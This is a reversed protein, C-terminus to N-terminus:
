FAFEGLENELNSIINELEIKNEQLPRLEDFKRAKTLEEVQNTVLYRQERMVMLQERLERVEKKTLRPIEQIKQSKQQLSLKLKELEQHKNTLSKYELLNDQLFILYGQYINALLRNYDQYENSVKLTNNSVTFYINKFINTQNEFDKLFSMLKNRLKNLSEEEQDIVNITVQNLIQQYKPLLIEIQKKILLISKYKDFISQMNTDDNFTNKLKWEYLLDDKCNVCCRFQISNISKLNEFNELVLNSYNLNPLKELFINLPVMISCNKRLRASDDCVIKGCLRCHHKRIIISFKVFCISCNSVLKDDQWYHFSQSNSNNSKIVSWLSQKQDFYNQILISALKIFRSQIKNRQLQKDNLCNQRQIKFDKMLNISLVQTGLKLDPKNYYCAQCCRSWIGDKDSSYEIGYNNNSNKLLIKYNTHRNCYLKGCKRCNVIGNKINLITQCSDISCYNPRTSSPQQWHARSLRSNFVPKPSSSSSSSSSVDFDDSLTFSRNQDHLDVKLRVPQQQQHHQQLLYNGGSQTNNSDNHIDDLHRNLQLNNIMSENCIPCALGKGNGNNSNKVSLDEEITDNVVLGDTKRSDGEIPSAIPEIADHSAPLPSKFPSGLVRKTKINNTAM